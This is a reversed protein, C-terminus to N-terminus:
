HIWLPEAGTLIQKWGRMYEWGDRRKAATALVARLGNEPAGEEEGKAAPRMRSTPYPLVRTM